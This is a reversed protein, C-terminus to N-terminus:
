QLYSKKEHSPLHSIIFYYDIRSVYYRMSTFVNEPVNKYTSQLQNSNGQNFVTPNLKSTKFSLVLVTKDELFFSLFVRHPSPLPMWGGGGKYTRPNFSSLMKTLSFFFKRTFKSYIQHLFIFFMFPSMFM